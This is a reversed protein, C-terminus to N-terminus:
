APRFRSGLLGSIGAVDVGEDRQNLLISTLRKPWLVHVGRTTFAGGVLPWDAEVFCLAGTVPVDGTVARVLDVQKLVSDVLQTRDRGGVVLTEIRPRLFGGATKLGPRGRYRKADVVWVGGPTIVLHDINAKSGPIRRDHLVSVGTSVMGDLRAGLREEGVAGLAWSRTQPREGSLAVAVGGLRGWRERVADEDKAKRREYERRASAGAVGVERSWLESHDPATEARM